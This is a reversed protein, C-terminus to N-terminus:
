RRTTPVFRNSSCFEGPLLDKPSELSTRTVRPTTSDKDLITCRYPPHDPEVVQTENLFRPEGNLGASVAFGFVLAKAAAKEVRWITEYRM